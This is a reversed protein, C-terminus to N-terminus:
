YLGLLKALMLFEREAESPSKPVIISKLPDPLPHWEKPAPGMVDRKETALIVNDTYMVEEPIPYPLEFRAAVVREVAEEIPKWQPLETKIPRPLDKTYAEAADHLLGWKILPLWRADESKDLNGFKIYERVLYRYVHASHDSVSYFVKSHGNFRCQLSLSHAIDEIDIDSPEMDLPHVAKGSFTQMWEM